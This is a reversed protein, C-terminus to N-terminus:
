GKAPAAPAARLVRAKAKLAEVRSKVADQAKRGKLAQEIGPRVEELTMTTGPKKEELKIIHYGFPSEVVDSVQGAELAFAAEEFSPVMQGRQFFGLDGGQPASGPDESNKTALEGFDKGQRIQALVGEAKKRAAAKQEPAASQDALFLIHRAHVQDQGVFQASNDRYYAEIEAGTVKITNVVTKDFYKSITIDDALNKRLSALDMGAPATTDSLGMQMKFMQWRQEVESSDAKVKAKGAENLILQRDILRDLSFNRQKEEPTAGATTSDPVFGQQQLVHVLQQVDSDTIASGDVTAAVGAALKATGKPNNSCGAAAIVLLALAPACRRFAPSLRLM